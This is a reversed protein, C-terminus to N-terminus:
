GSPSGDSDNTALLKALHGLHERLPALERELYTAAAPDVNGYGGLYKPMAEEVAIGDFLVASLLSRRVSKEHPHLGLDRAMRQIQKEIKGAVETVAEHQQPSLPDINHTLLSDSTKTTFVERVRRMDQEISSLTVHLRRLQSENLPIASTTESQKRDIM